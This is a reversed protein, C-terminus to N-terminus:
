NLVPQSARQSYIRGLRDAEMLQANAQTRAEDYKQQAQAAQGEFQGLNFNKSPLKGHAQALRAKELEHRREAAIGHLDAVEVLKRHYDLRRQLWDLKAGSLGKSGNLADLRARAPRIRNLDQGREALRLEAELKDAELRAQSDEAQAVSIDREVGAVESQAKNKEEAAQNVEGQAALMRQKDQLPLDSLVADNVQYKAGGCAAAALTFLLLWRSSATLHQFNM